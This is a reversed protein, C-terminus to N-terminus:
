ESFSSVKILTESRHDYRRLEIADGAAKTLQQRYLEYDDTKFFSSIWDWLVKWFNKQDELKDLMETMAFCLPQYINIPKLNSACQRWCAQGDEDFREFEFCGLTEVPLYYSTLDVLKLVQRFCSTFKEALAIRNERAESSHMYRECKTLVFLCKAPTLMHNKQRIEAIAHLLRHIGAVACKDRAGEESSEMLDVADVICIIAIANSVRKRLQANSDKTWLGPTDIFSCDLSESGNSFKFGHKIIESTGERVETFFKGTKAKELLKSWRDNLEKFDEDKPELYLPHFKAEDQALCHSMVSLMTTKGTGRNGLLIVEVPKDM